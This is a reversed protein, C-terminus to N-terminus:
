KAFMSNVLFEILLGMDAVTTNIIWNMSKSYQCKNERQKNNIQQVSLYRHKKHIIKYANFLIVRFHRFQACVRIRKRVFFYLIILLFILYVHVFFFCFLFIVGSHANKLTIFLFSQIATFQRLFINRHLAIDNASNSLSSLNKGDFLTFAVRM